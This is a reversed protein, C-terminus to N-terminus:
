MIIYCWSIKPICDFEDVPRPLFKSCKQDEDSGDGCDDSGDCVWHSSICRHNGCEFQTSTCFKDALSPLSLEANQLFSRIYGLRLEHKGHATPLRFFFVRTHKTNELSLFPLLIFSQLLSVVTLRMLETRVTMKRIVHGAWLFAAVVPVLLSTSQVNLNGRIQLVVFFVINCKQCNLISSFALCTLPSVFCGVQATERMPFTEVTMTATVCGHPCTVCLPKRVARSPLEKWEWASSVPVTPPNQSYHPFFFM